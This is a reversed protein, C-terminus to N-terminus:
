SGGARGERTGVGGGCSGGAGTSSVRSPRATLTGAPEVIRSAQRASPISTGVRQKRSLRVGTLTQRTQTTSTAPLRTRTGAQERRTSGPMSTCVPESRTRWLRRNTSSSSPEATSRESAGPTASMISSYPASGARNPGGEAAASAPTM